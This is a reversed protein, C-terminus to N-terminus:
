EVLQIAAELRKLCQPVDFGQQSGELNVGGSVISVNRWSAGPARPLLQGFEPNACRDPRWSPLRM